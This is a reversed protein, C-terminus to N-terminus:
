NGIGFCGKGSSSAKGTCKVAVDLDAVRFVQITDSGDDCIYAQGYLLGPQAAFSLVLVILIHQGARKM